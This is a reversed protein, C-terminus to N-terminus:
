RRGNLRRLGVAQFTSVSPRLIFNLCFLYLTNVIRVFYYSKVTAFQWLFGLLGAIFGSLSEMTWVHIIKLSVNFGPSQRSYFNLGPAVAEVLSRFRLYICDLDRASSVIARALTVQIRTGSRRLSTSSECRVAPAARSKPACLTPIRVLSLCRTRPPLSFPGCRAAWLVRRATSCLLFGALVGRPM